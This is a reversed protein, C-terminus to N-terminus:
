PKVPAPHSAQEHSQAVAQEPNIMGQLRRSEKEAGSQAVRRTMMSRTRRTGMLQRLADRPGLTTHIPQIKSKERSETVMSGSFLARSKSKSRERETAFFHGSLCSSLSQETQATREAGRKGREVTILGLRNRHYRAKGRVLVVGQTLSQRVRRNNWVSEPM